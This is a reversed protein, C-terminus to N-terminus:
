HAHPVDFAMVTIVMERNPDDRHTFRYQWSTETKQRILKKCNPHDETTEKIKALVASFDKNRNFVVVAAKTDRWSLYGLLQDITESYNKEGRWFKCEAIFINRGQDKILIDTKGEYNFTEGTAQGQYQGNLQMLFHTRIAEEDAHAFASPSYEMVRVMNSMIQLINEYQEDALAPEPKYPASSAPPQVPPLKKRVQPSAYTSGANDRPKMAFGLSAVLNRDRLLKEKRGSLRTQVRGAISANFTSASARLNTLNAEIEGITRDIQNRVQEGALNTGQISLILNNGRVQGRPPSMSFTTPQVRFFQGDGSFPVEVEIQTGAIHFPRSRDRIYRGHDQSVDINVERQDATINETHLEPVEMSYKSNFYEILADDSTNLLREAHYADIENELAAQQGREVSFWDVNCFLLDTNERALGFSM